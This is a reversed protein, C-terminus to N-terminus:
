PATLFMHEEARRSTDVSVGLKTSHGDNALVLDPFSSKWTTDPFDLGVPRPDTSGSM